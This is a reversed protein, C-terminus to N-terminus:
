PFATIQVFFTTTANVKAALLSKAWNGQSKPSLAENVEAGAAAVETGSDKKSDVMKAWFGRAAPANKLGARRVAFISISDFSWLCATPPKSIASLKCHSM